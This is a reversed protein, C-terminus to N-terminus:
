FKSIKLKIPFIRALANNSLKVIFEQKLLNIKLIIRLSCTIRSSKTKISLGTIKNKLREARDNEVLISFILFHQHVQDINQLEIHIV